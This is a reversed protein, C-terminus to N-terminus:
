GVAELLKSATNWRAIECGNVRSFRANVPKGRLTGKVTAVEPGGYQETCAITPPVPKFAKDALGALARCTASDGSADCRVDTTKAKGAGSGDHDVTITLRALSGGVSPPRSAPQEDSQGCGALALAFAILVVAPRM